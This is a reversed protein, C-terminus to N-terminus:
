VGVPKPLNLYDDDELDAKEGQFNIWKGPSLEDARRLKIEEYIEKQKEASAGKVLYVLYRSAVDQFGTLMRKGVLDVTVGFFENWFYSVTGGLM